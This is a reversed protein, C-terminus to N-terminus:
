LDLVDNKTTGDHTGSKNPPGAAMRSAPANHRPQLRASPDFDIDSLLPLEPKCIIRLAMRAPVVQRRTGPPATSRPVPLKSSCPRHDEVMINHM